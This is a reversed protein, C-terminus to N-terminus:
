LTRVCHLFRMVYHKVPVELASDTWLSHPTNANDEPKRVKYFFIQKTM